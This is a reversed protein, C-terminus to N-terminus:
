SVRKEGQQLVINEPKLDRHIIRKKHLYTLASATPCFAVVTVILYSHLVTTAHMVASPFFCLVHRYLPINTLKDSAWPESKYTLTCHQISSLVIIFVSLSKTPIVDILMIINFVNFTYIWVQAYSFHYCIIGIVFSHKEPASTWVTYMLSCGLTGKNGSPNGCRIFRRIHGPVSEEVEQCPGGM